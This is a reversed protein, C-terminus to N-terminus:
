VLYGLIIVLALLILSLWLFIKAFKESAEEEEKVQSITEVKPKESANGGPVAALLFAIILAALVVPLWYVGGIVPGRPTLWVSAAWTFLFSYSFFVVVCGM